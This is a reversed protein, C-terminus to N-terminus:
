PVYNENEVRKQKQENTKPRPKKKESEAKTKTVIPNKNEIQKNRIHPRNRQSSVCYLFNVHIQEFTLSVSHEM